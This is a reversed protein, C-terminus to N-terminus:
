NIIEDNLDSGFMLTNSNNKSEEIMNSKLFDKYLERQKENKIM